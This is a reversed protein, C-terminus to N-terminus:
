GNFVNMARVIGARACELAADVARGVMANVIAIEGPEFGSLVFDARADKAPMPEKQIGCRIRPFENSGLHYIISYLGNHGGHSGKARVRIMGLPLAFDDAIVMLNEVPAGFRELVSVAAQGSNNMYTLPKVLVLTRGDIRCRSFLYDGDGPRLRSKVRRSLEDIVQFGVNHRTGEYEAGPNGLGVM